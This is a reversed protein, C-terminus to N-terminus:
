LSISLILYIQMYFLFSPPTINFPLTEPCNATVLAKPSKSNFLSPTELIGSM